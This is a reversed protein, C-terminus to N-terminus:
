LLTAKIQVRSYTTEKETHCKSVGQIHRERERGREKRRESREGEREREEVKDRVGREKEGKYWERGGVKWRLEFKITPFVQWLIERKGDGGEGEKETRKM